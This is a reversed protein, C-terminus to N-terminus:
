KAVKAPKPLMDEPKFNANQGYNGRYEKLTEGIEDFVFQCILTNMPIHLKMQTHNSIEMTWRSIYGADGLGGCKCVSLGYRVTTSKSFMKCTIGNKGGIIEQTHALITTGPEIGIYYGQREENWKAKQPQGWYAAIDKSDDIFVESIEPNGKFYWEGLTCDYSNTGLYQENFPEIVINGKKMEEIIKKDSLM